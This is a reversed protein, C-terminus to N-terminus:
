ECSGEGIQGNFYSVNMEDWTANSGLDTGVFVLCHDIVVIFKQGVTCCDCDGTDSGM